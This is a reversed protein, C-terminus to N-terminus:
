VFVLQHGRVSIWRSVARTDYLAARNRGSPQPFGHRKRYYELTQRTFGFAACLDSSQLTPGAPLVITAPLSAM